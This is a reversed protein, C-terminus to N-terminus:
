SLKKSTENLTLFNGPWYKIRSSGEFGFAASNKKTEALTLAFDQMTVETQEYQQAVTFGLCTKTNHSKKKKQDFFESM